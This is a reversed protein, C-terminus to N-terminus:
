PFGTVLSNKFVCLLSATDDLYIEGLIIFCQFFANSLRGFSILFLQADQINNWSYLIFKQVYQIFLLTTYISTSSNAM